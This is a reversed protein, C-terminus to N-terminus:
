LGMTAPSEDPSDYIKRGERIAARVEEELRTYKERHARAVEDRRHLASFGPMDARPLAALAEKGAEILALVEARHGANTISALCPSLEPRDFSVKPGTFLDAKHLANETLGTLLYFRKTHERTLPNRGPPPGSRASYGTPYYPSNLDIWTVLRDMSEQDLRVKQHGKKLMRILPSTHSGWSKAPLHGAPGAGIAGTYGKSQLEAYSANFGFGRDGALIIRKAGKGGFDHCRVCHKDLVPQVEAMYSFVRPEGYWPTLKSPERSM